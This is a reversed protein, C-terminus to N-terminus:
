EAEFSGVPMITEPDTELIVAQVSGRTLEALARQFPEFAEVVFRSVITVDVEFTEDLVLGHQKGVLLRVQEYYTYPVAMM